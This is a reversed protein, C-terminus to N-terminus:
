GEEKWYAIYDHHPQRKEVPPFQMYDGYIGRLFSDYQKIAKVKHGEFEVDIYEDMYDRPFPPFNLYWVGLSAVTNTPRDNYKLIRKQAWKGFLFFHSFPACIVHAIYQLKSKRWVEGSMQMEYLLWISRKHKLFGRQSDPVKDIPFIDLWLGAKYFKSRLGKTKFQVVTESDSLRIHAHNNMNEGQIIEYRDDKYKAIFKEYDDRLMIIDIDDDWPIFGKHRIAGILTGYAISYRIDNTECFKAFNLLMELLLLKSEDFSIQRM